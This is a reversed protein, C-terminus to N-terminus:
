HNPKTGMIRMDRLDKLHYLAPEQHVGELGIGTMLAILSDPIYGWKHTMLPDKWGPDGYIAYFFMRGDLVKTRFVYELVKSLDPCELILTGGPKLVRLWERLVEPAEWQYFHEIVHIAMAEDVSGTDFPLTRVDSVIDVTPGPTVDVGLWGPIQKNGCGINIRM